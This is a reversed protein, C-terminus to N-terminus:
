GFKITLGKHQLSAMMGVWGAVAAIMVVGIVSISNFMFVMLLVSAIVWAIDLAIIIKVSAEHLATKFATFMVFSGFVVLFIGVAFFPMTEDVGFLGSIQRPLVTLLVGTAASSIGNILLTTKLPLM